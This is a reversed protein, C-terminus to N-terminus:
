YEDSFPDAEFGASRLLLVLLLNLDQATGKKDDLINKLNKSPYIGVYNNWQFNTSVYEYIKRIKDKDSDEPKIINVLIEKADKEKKLIKQFEQEDILDKAFDEWTKVVVEKAGYSNYFSVLQFNVQEIYDHENLCFPEPKVAPLNTLSWSKHSGEQYKNM